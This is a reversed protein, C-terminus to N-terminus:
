DLVLRQLRSRRMAAGAMGMGLLLMAWTAPEPVGNDGGGGGGDVDYTHIHTALNAENLVTTASGLQTGVDIGTGAGVIVRGRLDPLAFTTRGDGGFQTGFLSFLAQNQNIPLLQGNAFAFGRPAFNGAFPIIEGLVFDDGPLAGDEGFEPFLGQIRVLYSLGLGPEYQNVPQGGGAPDTTGGGDLDHDHTPMQASTLTVDGSGLFEGITVPALAAGQGTGVVARGRLDPIAFTTQGDGGYTTGILNFLSEYESILLVRGDAEMWSPEFSGAFLGVQGLFGNPAAGGSESPFVGEVQILYTMGLSPQYTDFPQNGGTPDTTGGGPLGHVHSPLQAPTLVTQDTGYIGGLDFPGLGPAIGTGIPTLGDLDPLAFTTQGNGGYSTGLISFLATNQAIPLVQGHTQPAYTLGFNFGFSRVFGITSGGGYDCGNCPFVGATQILMNLALSPQYNSFPASSGAPATIETVAAAPNAAVMGLGALAPVLSRILTGLFRNM